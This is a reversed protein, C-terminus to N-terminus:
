SGPGLSPYRCLFGIYNVVQTVSDRSPLLPPLSRPSDLPVELHSLFEIDIFHVTTLTSWAVPLHRHGWCHLCTSSHHSWHIIPCIHNRLARLGQGHGRWPAQKHPHLHPMGHDCMPAATIVTSMTNGGPLFCPCLHPLRDGHDQSCQRPAASCAGQLWQM